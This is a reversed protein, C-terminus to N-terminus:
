PKDPAPKPEAPSSVEPPYLFAINQRVAQPSFSIILWRDTVALAPGNIGFQLYWLGDSDHRLQVPSIGVLEKQVYALLKDARARLAAPDGDVRILVTWMLPLRFAQQPYDHIVVYHGLYPVIDRDISVGAREQLDHWFKRSSQRGAPSRAALYGQCVSDFVTQANCDIITYATAGDPIVPEGLQSLFRNAAIARQEDRGNRRAIGDVEVARSRGDPTSKFRLTWLGRKTGALRLSTLVRDMKDALLEDDKPRLRAFDIYWGLTARDGGTAEFAKTFWEDAALSRTRDSAADAVRDFSGEGFAVVYTQGIPGWTVSVWEPLRRDRIEFRPGTGEAGGEQGTQTTLVTDENNTHMNLMHQVRQEIAANQGRTHVILAAHLGALRQGGEGRPRASVDFLVITHPYDLVVSASALVDIWLRATADVKSLIGIEHARDVLFAALALTGRTSSPPVDSPPGAHFYVVAGDAPVVDLMDAPGAGAEAVM